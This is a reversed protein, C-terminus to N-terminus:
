ARALQARLTEKRLSGAWRQLMSDTRVTPVAQFVRAQTRFEYKEITCATRRGASRLVRGFAILRMACANDLLVPWSISLEIYAGPVLDHDLCFAVGGSSINLTRGTGSEVVADNKLLKYRLEREMPFRTKVRREDDVNAECRERGVVIALKATQM